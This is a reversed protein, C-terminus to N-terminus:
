LTKEGSLRYRQPLLEKNEQLIDRLKARARSLRSKVTGVSVGTVDAVEQYNMGQIDSLVLTARQDHPLMGICAQLVGGLEGRLVHDEPSESEDLMLSSHDPDALVDDLPESPRRQKQRMLDYCSNTVIRLLWAKFSGGRFRSIAKYAKIFSDQTADAAMDEDGVVRYAVNYALGQYQLVLQNFAPLQGKQAAKILESESKAHM